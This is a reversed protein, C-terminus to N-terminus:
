HDAQGHGRLYDAFFRDLMDADCATFDGEIEQETMWADLARAATKYATITDEQFPLKKKNTRTRLSDCFESIMMKWLDPGHVPADQCPDRFVVGAAGGSPM